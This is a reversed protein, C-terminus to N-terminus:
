LNAPQDPAQLPVSVQVMVASASLFTVAVNKASYVTVVDSLPVPEPLTLEDGAPMAHGDSQLSSTVSPLEIVSVAAGSAPESKVPQLPPPHVPVPAQTTVGLAAVVTVAVNAGLVWVSETPVAPVPLPVTVDVGAPM